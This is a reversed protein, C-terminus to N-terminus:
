TGTGYLLTLPCPAPAPSWCTPRSAEPGRADAVQVDHGAAALKRALNGGIAGAGIATLKM